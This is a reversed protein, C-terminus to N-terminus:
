RHFIGGLAADGWQHAQTVAVPFVDGTLGVRFDEVIEGLVRGFADVTCVVWSCGLHKGTHACYRCLAPIEGGEVRRHAFALGAAPHDILSQAVTGIEGPVVLRQHARGFTVHAVM